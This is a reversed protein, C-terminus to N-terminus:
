AGLTEAGYKAEIVPFDARSHGYGRDSSPAWHWRGRRSSWRLGAAKLADRQSYTDAGWVWLWSGVVELTLGHTTSRVVDAVDYATLADTDM